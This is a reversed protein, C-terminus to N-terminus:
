ELSEAIQIAEALSLNGELRYTIEDEAWLLVHGQALRITDWNGNRLVLLYPGSLWLAPRNHVYGGSEIKPQMKWATVDSTLLHLTLRVQTPDAKDLWLLVVVDGDLDQRYVRDPPGLDTPYTPLRIPFAVQAQAAALTTEGDLDQFFHLDVLPSRPTAPTPMHTATPEILWIRVAGVQLWELLAARVPPVALLGTLVIALLAVLAWALRRPMVAGRRPSPQRLRQREMGALDPTIPYPMRRAHAQIVTEWQNNREAKM